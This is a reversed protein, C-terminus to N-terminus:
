GNAVASLDVAGTPVAPVDANGYHDFTVTGAGGKSTGTDVIKLIYPPGTAAVYLTGGRSDALPIASNGDLKTVAQKTVRGEPKLGDLFKSSDVIGALDRFNANTTPAKVWRNALLQAAGAEGSLKSWSAEDAKLYLEGGSVVLQLTAGKVTIRGGGRSPSLSVDLSIKDSGQGTDGVVHFSSAQRVAAKADDFIQTPTKKEEGNSSKGGGCAGCILVFLLAAAILRSQASLTQM